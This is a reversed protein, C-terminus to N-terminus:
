ASKGEEKYWKHYCHPCTLTMAVTVTIVVKQDCWGCIVWWEKKTGAVPSSGAHDM